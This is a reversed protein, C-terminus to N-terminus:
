RRLFSANHFSARHRDTRRDTAHRATAIPQVNVAPFERSALHFHFLIRNFLYCWLSSAFVALCDHFSGILSRVSKLTASTVNNTIQSRYQCVIWM